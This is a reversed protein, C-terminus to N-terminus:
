KGAKYEQWELDLWYNANETFSCNGCAISEGDVWEWPKDTPNREQCAKCPCTQKHNCKPCAIM